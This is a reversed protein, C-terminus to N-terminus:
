IKKDKEGRSPTGESRCPTTAGENDEKQREQRTDSLKSRTQPERRLEIGDHRDKGQRQTERRLEIGDHRDDRQQPERRLEIRQDWTMRTLATIPKAKKAM